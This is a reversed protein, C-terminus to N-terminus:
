RCREVKTEVGKDEIRTMKVSGRCQGRLSKGEVEEDDEREHKGSACSVETNTKKANERRLLKNCRRHGQPKQRFMANNTMLVTNVRVAVRV